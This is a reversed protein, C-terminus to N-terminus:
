SAWVPESTLSNRRATALHLLVRTCLETRRLIWSAIQTWLTMRPIINRHGRRIVTVKGLLENTSVPSDATASRDGRTIVVVDDQERNLRLVRHVVLRNKRAFVVIDGLSIDAVAVRHIELVDGPWISPLMSAGAVALRAEGASRLVKVFLLFRLRKHEDIATAM